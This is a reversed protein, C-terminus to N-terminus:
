KPREMLLDHVAQYTRLGVNGDPTYFYRERFEQRNLLMEKTVVRSEPNNVYSVIREYLEEKSHIWEVAGSRHLPILDDAIKSYLEGYAPYLVPKATFMSEIMATTQFGIIVDANIILDLAQYNTTLVLVNALPKEIFGGFFFSSVDGPHGGKLVIQVRDEYELAIEKLVEYHEVQLEHWDRKENPYFRKDIYNTNGFAFYLVLVKDDSLKPHIQPKTPWCDENKWIDSKLDGTIVVKGGNIGINEWYDRHKENSTCMLDAQPEFYKQVFPINKKFVVPVIVGERETVVWPIGLKRAMAITERWRLDGVSATVFAKPKYVYIITRLITDLHYDLKGKKDQFIKPYLAIKDHNLSFSGNLLFDKMFFLAPKEFLKRPLYIIRCPIYNNKIALELWEYRHDSEPSVLYVAIKKNSNRKLENRAYQNLETTFYQRRYNSNVQEFQQIIYWKRFQPVKVILWLLVAVHTRDLRKNNRRLYAWWGGRILYRWYKWSKSIITKM